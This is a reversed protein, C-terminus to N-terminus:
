CPSKLKVHMEGASATLESSAPPILVASFMQNGRIGRFNSNKDKYLRLAAKAREFVSADLDLSATEDVTRNREAFSASWNGFHVLKPKVFYKTSAADGANASELVPQASSASPGCLFAAQGLLITVDVLVSRSSGM